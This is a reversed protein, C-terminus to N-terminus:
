KTLCIIAAGCEEDLRTRNTIIRVSSVMTDLITMYLTVNTFLVISFVTLLPAIAVEVGMPPRRLMARALTYHL